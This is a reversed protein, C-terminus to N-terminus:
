QKMTACCIMMNDVLSRLANQDDARLTLWETLEETIHRIVHVDPLIPFSVACSIAITLTTELFNRRSDRLFGRSRRCYILLELINSMKDRTWRVYTFM